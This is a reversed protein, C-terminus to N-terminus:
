RGEEAAGCTARGSGSPRALGRKVGSRAWRIVRKGAPEAGAGGGEGSEEKLLDMHSVKRKRRNERRM